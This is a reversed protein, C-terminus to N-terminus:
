DIRAKVAVSGTTLRGLPNLIPELSDAHYKKCIELIDLIRAADKLRKDRWSKLNEVEKAM